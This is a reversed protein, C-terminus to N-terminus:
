YAHCTSKLSDTWAHEVFHSINSSPLAYTNSQILKSSTLTTKCRVSRSAHVLCVSCIRIGLQSYWTQLWKFYKNAGKTVPCPKVVSIWWCNCKYTNHLALIFIWMFRSSQVKVQLLACLFFKPSPLVPIFYYLKCCLVRHPLDNVTWWGQM